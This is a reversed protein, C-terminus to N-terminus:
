PKLSNNRQEAAWAAREATQQAYKIGNEQAKSSVEMLRGATAEVSHGWSTAIKCWAFDVSTRQPNGSPGTPAGALVRDYSPWARAQRRNARATAGPQIAEVPRVEPALLGMSDLEAVTTFRGRQEARITVTPFDPAYKPKFNLTGAVRTAGSANLDAGAGKRLRATTGTPAGTIAVWAQYSNPSTEIVLFAAPAIKAAKAGDLDDLQVCVAGAVRPRVIINNQRAPANKMLYPLSTTLEAVTQGPRFGRKTGDIHTFTVDFHTAGISAFTDVMGLAAVTPGTAAFPTSADAPPILEMTRSTPENHTQQEYRVPSLNVVQCSGGGTAERHCGEM